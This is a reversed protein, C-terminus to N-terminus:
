GNAEKGGAYRVPTGPRVGAAQGLQALPDDLGLSQRARKALARLNNIPVVDAMGDQMELSALQELTECNHEALIKRQADSLWSVHQLANM